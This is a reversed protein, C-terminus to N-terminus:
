GYNVSSHTLMCIVGFDGISRFEVGVVISQCVAVILGVDCQLLRAVL